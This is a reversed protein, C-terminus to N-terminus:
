NFPKNSKPAFIILGGNLLLVPGPKNGVAKPAAMGLAINNVQGQYLGGDAGSLGFQGLRQGVFALGQFWVAPKVLSKQRTAFGPRNRTDM